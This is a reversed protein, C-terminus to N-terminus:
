GVTNDVFGLGGAVSFFAERNGKARQKSHKANRILRSFILAYILLNSLFADLFRRLGKVTESHKHRNNIILCCHNIMITSYWQM